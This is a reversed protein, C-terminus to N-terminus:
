VRRFRATPDDLVTDVLEDLRRRVSDSPTPPDHQAVRCHLARSLREAAYLREAPRLVREDDLLDDLVMLADAGGRDHRTLNTSVAM